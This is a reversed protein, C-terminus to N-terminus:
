AWSSVCDDEYLVDKLLMILYTSLGLSAVGDNIGCAVPQGQQLGTQIVGLCLGVITLLWQSLPKTYLKCISYLANQIQCICLQRCLSRNWMRDRNQFNHPTLDAFVYM